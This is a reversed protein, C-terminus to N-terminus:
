DRREIEGEYMWVSERHGDNWYVVRYEMGNIGWSISDIVGPMKIAKITVESHLNYKATLTVM